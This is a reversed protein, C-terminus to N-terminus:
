PPQVFHPMTNRVWAQLTKRLATEYEGRAAFVALTEYDGSIPGEFAVTGDRTIRVTTRLKADYQLYMNVWLQSISGTVVVPYGVAAEPSEVSQADAGARRLEQVLADAVWRGIDQNQHQDAKTDIRVNATVMGFGNRVEGIDQLRDRPREDQFALVAIRGDAAYTEEVPEYKLNVYRDGFACGGAGVALLGLIPAILLWRTRPLPSARGPDGIRM